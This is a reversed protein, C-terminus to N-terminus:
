RSELRVGGLIGSPLVTVKEMEQPEFRVGYRLNLFRYNPLSRGAMHNMATNAAVLRLRNAGPKLLRTVDLRYPACWVSGAREGNVYVVVAERVPGDLWARHGNTLRSEPVPTGAGFDLRWRAGRLQASTLTVDREYTHTGSFYRTADAAAWDGLPRDWGATLDISEGSARREPRSHHPRKSFVYVRSEYPALDVVLNAGEGRPATAEGTLANWAEPTGEARFRARLEVPQNSTNAVFYIDADPTRRHEFGLAHQEASWAIDPTLKAKLAAGLESDRAVLTASSLAQRVADHDAAPARLGPAREPRRRTALVIGGRKEFAAIARAAAAPLFEVNPLVLVRYRGLARELTGDDLFDMAYGNDLIQPMVEAGVHERLAEIMHVHGATFRSWADSTPLYLAVDHAVEGQRLLWSMRQLYRAIDPMAAYWPNSESFVAAAYFRWGPYEEGANTYPWGHGILQNVGQLFHIDAEAKMDLPTARMAPSHLWTWTESTTVARGYIHNASSAWRAARVVKWQAGEGESIDTHASSSLTAPPIGYGQIRFQSGRARVWAHLPQLFREDLLETLTRGWDHRIGPTQAGQDSALAPLLPRLDYGRRKQFEALLDPTWDSGFVELSDCFLAFAKDPGLANVLPEAVTRLYRDLAARDYHDLVYGEGGVSPRKVMMGTRSSLFFWIEAPAGNAPLWLAGDRVDRWEELGGATFAGLLKEGQMLTPLPIRRAGAAVKVKEVRLRGAAETIPVGPGGYPWGSGLTLDMRLGLEKAKRATFRLHDLFEPSLFNMNRVGREPDDLALPYVPQVEFGGIGGDRMVRMERELEPQTVSPGFWWWRMMIRAEDPPREFGRQLDDIGAAHAPPALAPFALLAAMLLGAGTFRLM